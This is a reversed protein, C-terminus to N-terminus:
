ASRPAPPTPRHGAAIQEVQAVVAAQWEAPVVAFVGDDVAQLAEHAVLGPETGEPSMGTSVLAPCIMTVRVPTDALAMAAHQAVAVVAHKSPGYAGGGPFVTLGALSATILVHAQEGSALLGPVFARLGNVVGGVNIGFVRDWEDPPVEWPAGLSAGVVGANLCILRAQPAQAALANMAAPDAVDATVGTAGLREATASLADADVDALVLDAGKAHLAEALARGIGSAAGTVVATLVDSAM